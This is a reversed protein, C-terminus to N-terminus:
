KRNQKGAKDPEPPLKLAIRLAVWESQPIDSRSWGASSGASPLNLHLSLSKHQKQYEVHRIVKAVPDYALSSHKGIITGVTRYETEVTHVKGSLIVIEELTLGDILRRLTSGPIQRFVEETAHSNSTCRERIERSIAPSDTYKGTDLGRGDWSLIPSFSSSIFSSRSLMDDLVDNAEKSMPEYVLNKETYSVSPQTKPLTKPDFLELGRSLTKVRLIEANAFKMEDEACRRFDSGPDLKAILRELRVRGTHKAQILENFLGRQEHLLILMERRQSWNPHGFRKWINEIFSQYAPPDLVPDAGYCPNGPSSPLSEAFGTTHNFIVFVLLIYGLLLLLAASSRIWPRKRYNHIQDKPHDMNM